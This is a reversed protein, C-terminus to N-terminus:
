KLEGPEIIELEGFYSPFFRHQKILLDLFCEDLIYTKTWDNENRVCRGIAQVLTRVTSWAYWSPDKKLKIMTVRDGLYPFPIKCLIQFRGMHDRLDLGETMGPSVLVTPADSSLHAQLIHQRDAAIRQVLLRKHQLAALSKTIAYSSTHIIGKENPHRELIQEIQTLLTPMTKNVCYKSMKGVPIAVIGFSKPKFQTPISLFAATNPIGASRFFVDKDLITASMLLKKKGRSYLLNRAQWTVNLPKLQFAREPQTEHIVVYNDRNGGMELLFRNVQCLHKDLFEYRKTLEKLTSSFGFKIQQEIKAFTRILAKSLAPAYITEIWKVVEEDKADPMQLCLEKVFTENVQVTAWRRVESEINHAEDLILLERPKLNKGYVASSLMFSYNSVGIISSAFKNKAAKYGCESTPDCLVIDPNKKKLTNKIRLTEACTQNQAWSCSFNSSSRLDVILEPFDRVYQDQLIKQSTLIYSTTKEFNVADLERLVDHNANFWRALTVAIASKGVGTGLETVVYENDNGLFQEIIFDLAQEQSPRPKTHPFFLRWDLFGNM